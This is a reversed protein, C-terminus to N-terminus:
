MMTLKRLRGCWQQRELLMSNLLGNPPFDDDCNEFQKVKQAKFIESLLVMHEATKRKKENQEHTAPPALIKELMKWEKEEWVGVCLCLTYNHLKISHFFHTKVKTPRNKRRKKWSHSFKYVNKRLKKKTPATSSSLAFNRQEQQMCFHAKIKNVRSENFSTSHSMFFNIVKAKELWM